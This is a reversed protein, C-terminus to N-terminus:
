KGEVEAWIIQRIIDSVTTGRAKARKDLIKRLKSPLRICTAVGELKQKSRVAM